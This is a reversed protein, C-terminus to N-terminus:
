VVRYNKTNYTYLKYFCVNSTTRSLLTKKLFSTYEKFFIEPPFKYPIENLNETKRNQFKLM